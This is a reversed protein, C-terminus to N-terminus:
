NKSFKEMLGKCNEEIVDCQVRYYTRNGRIKPEIVKAENLIKLHHSISPRTLYLDQTLTEVHREENFLLDLIKRRIPDGIAEFFGTKKNTM